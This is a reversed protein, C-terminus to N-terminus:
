VVAEELPLTEAPQRKLKTYTPKETEISVKKLKIPRAFEKALLSELNDLKM